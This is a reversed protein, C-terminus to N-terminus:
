GQIRALDRINRKDEETLLHRAMMTEGKQLFNAEIVTSFVPFGQMANM